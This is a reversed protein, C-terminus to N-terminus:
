EKKIKYYYYLSATIAQTQNYLSTNISQVEFVNTLGQSFMLNLEVEGKNFSFAYGAAINVAFEIKSDTGAKYFRGLTEELVILEQRYIYSISPGLYFNIRSHGKGFRLNMM